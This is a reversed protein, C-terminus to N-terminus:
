NSNSYAELIFRNIIKRLEPLSRDIQKYTYIKFFDQQIIKNGDSEIKCLDESLEMHMRARASISKLEQNCDYIKGEIGRKIRVEKKTALDCGTIDLLEKYYHESWIENKSEKKYHDKKCMEGSIYAAVNKKKYVAHVDTSNPNGSKSRTIYGLSEQLANWTDRIESWHIYRHTTIHFHINGNDQAEAKWVYNIVNWRKRMIRIFPQLLRQKIEKDSHIQASSLTLTIFVLKYDIMRFFKSKKLTKSQAM